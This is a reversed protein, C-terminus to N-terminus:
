HVARADDDDDLESDDDGPPALRVRVLRIRRGEVEEATFHWGDLELEEGPAPV